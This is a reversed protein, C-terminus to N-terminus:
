ESISQNNKRYGETYYKLEDNTRALDDLWRYLNITTYEPPDIPIVYFNVLIMVIEAILPVLIILCTPNCTLLCYIGFFILVNRIFCHISLCRDKDLFQQNYIMIIFVLLMIPIIINPNLLDKLYKIM